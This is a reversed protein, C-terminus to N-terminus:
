SSANTHVAPHVPLLLLCLAECLYFTIIIIIINNNNKNNQWPSQTLKSKLLLLHNQNGNAAPLTYPTLPFSVVCSKTPRQYISQTTIIFSFSSTQAIRACAYRWCQELKTYSIPVAKDIGPLRRQCFILVSVPVSVNWWCHASFSLAQSDCFQTLENNRRPTSHLAVM